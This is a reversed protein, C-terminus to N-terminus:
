IITADLRSILVTAALSVGFIIALIWLIRNFVTAISRKVNGAYEDIAADM